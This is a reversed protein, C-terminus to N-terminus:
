ETAKKKAERERARQRQKRLRAQERKIDAKTQLDEYSKYLIKGDEKDEIRYDLDPFTEKMFKILPKINEEDNFHLADVQVYGPCVGLMKIIIALM